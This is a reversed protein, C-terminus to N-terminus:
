GPTPANVDISLLQHVGRANLYTLTLNAIKTVQRELSFATQMIYPAHLDAAIRYIPSLTQTPLQSVAPVTPFFDIAPCPPTSCETSLAYQQQTIGNLRDAN